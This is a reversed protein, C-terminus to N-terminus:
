NDHNCQLKMVGGCGCSMRISREAIDHKILRRISESNIIQFNHFADAELKARYGMCVDIVM